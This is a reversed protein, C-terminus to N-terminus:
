NKVMRDDICMYCRRVRVRGYVRVQCKLVRPYGYVIDMKCKVMKPSLKKGRMKITEEYSLNPSV